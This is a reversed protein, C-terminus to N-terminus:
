FSIVNLPISVVMTNLIKQGGM